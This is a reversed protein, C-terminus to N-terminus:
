SANGKEERIRNLFNQLRVALANAAEESVGYAEPDNVIQILQKIEEKSWNGYPM